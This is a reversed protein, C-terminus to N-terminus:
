SEKSSSPTTPTPWPLLSHGSSPKTLYYNPDDLPSRALRFSLVALALVFPAWGYREWDSSSAANMVAGVALVATLPWMAHRSISSPVAATTIEGRSLVTLLALLWFAAQITSAVRLAGPLQGNEAGGWAAAGWPAGAVLALQFSVVIGLGAALVAAVGRASRTRSFASGDATHPRDHTQRPKPVTSM